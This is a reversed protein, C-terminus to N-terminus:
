PLALSSSPAFPVFYFCDDGHPPSIDLSIIVCAFIVIAPECRVASCRWSYSSLNKGLSALQPDCPDPVTLANFLMLAEATLHYASYCSMRILNHSLRRTWISSAQLYVGMSHGQRSSTKHAIIYLSSRWTWSIKM